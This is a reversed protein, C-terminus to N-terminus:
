GADPMVEAGSPFTLTPLVTDWPRAVGRGSAVVTLREWTVGRGDSNPSWRFTLHERTGNFCARVLTCAYDSKGTDLWWPGHEVAAAVIEWVCDPAGPLSDAAWLFMEESAVERRM